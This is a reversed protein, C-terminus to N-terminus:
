NDIKKWKFGSASNSIGNVCNWISHYSIGTKNHADMISAYIDIIEGTNIDYQEVKVSNSKIKGKGSASMKAKSEETHKRGKNNESVKHLAERQKESCKGSKAKSLNQKHEETFDRGTLSESLHRKHEETFKKGKNFYKIQEIVELQKDSLPKDKKAKSINERHEETLQRGTLAISIKEKIEDSLTASTLGGSQANYGYERNQLQWEDILSQEIRSAEEVSLNSFLIEHEFNEWGWKQIANYMHPQRDTYGKGDNWRKEPDQSTVGVYKKGNVKNTHAYVCFTKETNLNNLM